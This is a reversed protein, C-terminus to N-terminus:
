SESKIKKEKETSGWVFYCKKYKFNCNLFGLQVKPRIAIHMKNPWNLYKICTAKAYYM